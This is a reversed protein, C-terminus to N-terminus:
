QPCYRARAVDDSTIATQAVWVEDLNGTYGGGFQVNDLVPGGGLSVGGAQTRVGDVWLRLNPEDLSAVVHHWAGAAVEASTATTLNGDTSDVVTVSYRVTGPSASAVRVSLRGDATLFVLQSGGVGTPNSWVEVTFAPTAGLGAPWAVHGGNFELGGAFRGAGGSPDTAEPNADDGLTAAAGGTANIQTQGGDDFHFLGVAGEPGPAACAITWTRIAMGGNGAGDVARVAFQHSGAPANFSLPSTCETFAAGDLSCQTTGEDATFTFTVFPGTTAGAAPGGTITISPAVTDVTWARTAPTADPHNAGDIARVAFTHAGQPLMMVSHPATCATFAGGDLQCEFTADPETATFSFTASASPTVGTPGATITTDPASLDVLWERVAPTPDLNGVADRVRVEFRHMREVLNQYTMPSSCPTFAAGDLSCTFTAGAGADPSLFTFTASTTGSIDNPGTLIQTDPMLTNITWAYLVPTADANGARDRARVRFTHTGDGFPGFEQDPVCAIFDGGDVACEFAVNPETSEFDFRVMVSNDAVPPMETLRTDPPATDIM